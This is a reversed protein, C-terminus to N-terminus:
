QAEKARPKRQKRLRKAAEFLSLRYRFSDRKFLCACTEILGALEDGTRKETWIIWARRQITSEFHEPKTKYGPIGLKDYLLNLKREEAQAESLCEPFDEPLPEPDPM